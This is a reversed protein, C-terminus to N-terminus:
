VKEGAEAEALKARWDRRAVIMGWAALGLLLASLGILLLSIPRQLFITWSGGSMILSQRLSLEFIPAIVLGLVLPAPDFNFKKLFYGVAGFILMHLCALALNRDGLVRLNLIPERRTLEWLVGGVLGLGALAASAVIFPSSFWDYREGLDLMIQLAGLGLAIVALGTFDARWRDPGSRRILYPPDSIYRLSLSLALLGVPVNIFFIWRWDYNDTIWGGLTPGIVPAVVVTMGYVAMGMGRLRPPFTDVLISQTLPQLGGGGLGQLVRFTVLSTLNPALGCLFSSATFIAVAILYYNRRGIASSLWATAPLVMANAVLYSTLVWTSDNVSAGLNGAIHPLAVNAISTDLVEIFTALTAVIAIVWPNHPAHFVEHSAGAHAARASM